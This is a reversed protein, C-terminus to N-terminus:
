KQATDCRYYDGLSDDTLPLVVTTAGYRTARKKYWNFCGEYAMDHPCAEQVLYECQADPVSTEIRVKEYGPYKVAACAAISFGLLVIALLKM